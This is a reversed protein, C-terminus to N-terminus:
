RDTAPLWSFNINNQVAVTPGRNALGLATTTVKLTALAAGMSPKTELSEDIVEVAKISTKYLGNELMEKLAPDVLEKIREDRLVMFEPSRVMERYKNQSMAAMGAKEAVTKHPYSLAIEVVSEMEEYRQRGKNVAISRKGHSIAM